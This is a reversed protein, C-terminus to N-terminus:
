WACMGLGGLASVLKDAAFKSGFHKTTEIQCIYIYVSYIDWANLIHGCYQLCDCLSVVLTHNYIYVILLVSVFTELTVKSRMLMSTCSLIDYKVGCVQM